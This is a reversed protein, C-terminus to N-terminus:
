SVSKENREWYRHRIEDRRTHTRCISSVFGEAILVILAPIFFLLLYLSMLYSLITVDSTGMRRTKNKREKKEWEPM